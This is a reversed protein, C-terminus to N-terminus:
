SLGLFRGIRSLLSGEQAGDEASQDSFSEMIEASERIRKEVVNSLAELGKFDTSLVVALAVKDVVVVEMETEAIVDASRKEGTLLSMEGFFENPGRFAVTTSQGNEGVVDVRATGTKIVFLSDGEDGQRVLREGAHYRHLSANRALQDIQSDVLPALIPLPRLQQFIEDKLRSQAQIEHDDTIQRVTVDRIPFPVTIGERKIAYWIRSLVADRIEPTQSFDNIWYRIDYIIAFDAYENVLVDPPPSKLVGEASQVAPLVVRKVEGPPTGYPLGINVHLRQEKTPRSFNTVDQRVVNSNALTIHENDISRLTITRWNMRVVEGEQGDVNIWDTIDFPRDLQLAVGSILNGLMDQLALGIVASAVTSTVLLANLDVGFVQNLIALAVGLLIAVNFIEILLRPVRSEGRRNLIYDWIILDMLQLGINTALMLTIALFTKTLTESPAPEVSSLVLYIGWFIAAGLASTRIRSIVPLPRLLWLLLAVGLGLGIARVLSNLLVSDFDM